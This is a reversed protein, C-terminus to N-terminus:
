NLVFHWLTEYRVNRSVYTSVKRSWQVLMGGHHHCCKWSVKTSDNLRLRLEPCPPAARGVMACGAPSSTHALAFTVYQCRTSSGPPTHPFMCCAVLTQHEARSAQCLEGLGVQWGAAAGVVRAQSVRM